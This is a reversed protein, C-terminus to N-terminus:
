RKITGFRQLAQICEDGYAVLWVVTPLPREYQKGTPRIFRPTHLRTWANRHDNWLDRMWKGQSTPILAIGHGHEQFRPVFHRMKSFPPNMWVRGHWPQVLADDQETYHNTAPIWPIGGEPAAVDLDFTIALTTFVEPPTYCEDNKGTSTNARGVGLRQINTVM